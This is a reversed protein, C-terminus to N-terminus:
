GSQLVTQCEVGLRQRIVLSVSGSFGLRSPISNFIFYIVNRDCVRIWGDNVTQMLSSALRRFERLLERRPLEWNIQNLIAEIEDGFQVQVQDGVSRLLEAVESMIEPDFTLHPRDDASVIM